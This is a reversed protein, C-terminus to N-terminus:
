ILSHFLLLNVYISALSGRFNSCFRTLLFILLNFFSCFNILLSFM